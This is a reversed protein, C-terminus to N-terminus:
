GIVFAPELLEAKTDRPVEVLSCQSNGKPGSAAALAKIYFGKVHSARM